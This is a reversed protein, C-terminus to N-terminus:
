PHLEKIDADYKKSFNPDYYAYAGGRAFFAANHIIPGEDGRKSFTFFKPDSETRTGIKQLFWQGTNPTDTKNQCLFYLNTKNGLFGKKRYCKEWNLQAETPLIIPRYLGGYEGHFPHNGFDAYANKEESLEAGM